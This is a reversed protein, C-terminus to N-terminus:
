GQVGLSFELEANWEISWALVLCLLKQNGETSLYNLIPEDLNRINVFYLIRLFELLTELM